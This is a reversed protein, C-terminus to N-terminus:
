GSDVMRLFRDVLTRLFDDDATGGIEALRFHIPGVLLEMHEAADPIDLGARRLMDAAADLRERWFQTRIVRFAESTGTRTAAILARGLPSELNDQVARCLALLDDRLADPGSSTMPIPVASAARGRIAALLLADVSSFRRYITTKNVGAVKAVEDVSIAVSGKNALVQLTAALIKKDVAPGRRHAPAPKSADMEDELGSGNDPSSTM